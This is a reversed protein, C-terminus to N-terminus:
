KLNRNRGVNPFIQMFAGILLLYLSFLVLIVNFLFPPNLNYFFLGVMCLAGWFLFIPLNLWRLRVVRVPHLFWIPFFTCIIFTMILSFTVVSSPKILIFVFLVLNWVVPFGKFFNECTKMGIDAYYIASSIVIASSAIIALKNEMLGSKYFVFAPVIVYTVYDIINDLQEGSWNPLVEKVKLSRAIPGDIGDIVLALTMCLVLYYWQENTAFILSLLAVISGLSTFIHVSFAKAKRISPIKTDM